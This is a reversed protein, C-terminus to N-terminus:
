YELNPFPNHRKRTAVTFWLQSAWTFMSIGLNSNQTPDDGGIEKTEIKENGRQKLKKVKRNSM